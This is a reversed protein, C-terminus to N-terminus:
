PAVDPSLLFKQNPALDVEDLNDGSGIRDIVLFDSPADLALLFHHWVGRAYNVGQDGRARFARIAAADLPGAPAVVVLYDRGSLPMFAQSALPHREMMTIPVPPPIPQARFISVGARGDAESADIAALDHHRVCHGQNIGMRTEATEVSIVDGFPAFAAQTLPQARVLREPPAVAAPQTM